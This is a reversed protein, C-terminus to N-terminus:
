SVSPAAADEEHAEIMGLLEKRSHVGLKAYIRRTHSKLTGNAIVLKDEIYASTKGRAIYELVELERPSLGYARALEACKQVLWAEDRGDQGKVHVGMFSAGWSDSARHDALLVVSAVVIGLTLAASVFGEDVFPPLAGGQMLGPVRHALLRFAATLEEIGCLLLVSVGYRRSLDCMLFTLLLFIFSYGTSVLLDPFPGALPSSLPTLALGCLMLAFPTRYIATFSMKRSLVCLFLLSIVPALLTGCTYAGSSFEISTEQIGFTFEYIGLVAILSWPIRMRGWAPHPLDLPSMRAFNHRLCIISLMPLVLLIALRRLGTADGLMWSGLGGLLFAGSVYFILDFPELCSHFEAWLLISLASSFGALLAATAVLPLPYGLMGGLFDAIAAAVSLALMAVFAPRRNYLPAIKRALVVFTLFALLMFGSYLDDGWIPDAPRATLFGQGLLDNAARSFAFGFFLPRIPHPASLRARWTALIGSASSTAASEGRDKGTIDM